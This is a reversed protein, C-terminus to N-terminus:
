VTTNLVKTAVRVEATWYDEQASKTDTFIRSQMPLMWNVGIATLASPLPSLNEYIKRTVFERFEKVYPSKGAGLWRHTARVVQLGRLEPNKTGLALHGLETTDEYVIFSTEHVGAWYADWDVETELPLRSTPTLTNRYATYLSKLWDLMIDDVDAYFQWPM